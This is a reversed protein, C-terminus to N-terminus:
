DGQKLLRNTKKMENDNFVVIAEQGILLDM